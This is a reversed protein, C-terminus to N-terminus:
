RNWKNHNKATWYDKSYDEIKLDNDGVHIIIAAVEFPNEASRVMRNFAWGLDKRRESDLNSYRDDILHSLCWLDKTRQDCQWTESQGLYLKAEYIDRVSEVLEIVQNYDIEM